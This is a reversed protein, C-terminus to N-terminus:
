IETYCLNPLTPLSKIIHIKEQMHMGKRTLLNSSLFFGIHIIKILFAHSYNINLKITIM